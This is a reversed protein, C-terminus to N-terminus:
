RIACYAAPTAALCLSPDLLAEGPDSGAALEERFRSVMLLSYDVGLALGIMTVINLAIADISTWRALLALASTGVATAVLGCIAPVLAALPSRFIALLLLVLIPLAIVEGRGIADLTEQNIGRVLPALGTVEARLPRRVADDLTAEVQPTVEDVIRQFPAAVQLTLLAQGRPERLTRSGGTGWPSLVTVGDIRQLRRVQVPVYKDIRISVAAALAEIRLVGAAVTLRVLAAGQGQGVAVLM